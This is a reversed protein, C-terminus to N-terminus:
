AGVVPATAALVRVSDLGLPASAGEAALSAFRDGLRAELSARAMAHPFAAMPHLPAGLYAVWADM